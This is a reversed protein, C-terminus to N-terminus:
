TTPTIQSTALNRVQHQTILGELLLIAAKREETDLKELVFYRQYLISDKIKPVGEMQAHPILLYDTSIELAQAIKVVNDATPMTSGTEYRAIAKPHMQTLKSLHDQTYGRILRVEKLRKAFLM